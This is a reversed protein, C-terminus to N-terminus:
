EIYDLYPSQLELITDLTQEAARVSHVVPDVLLAQLAIKRSGTLVAEATMDHIAVQNQLLGAFGAPLRGLRVGHVGDKDITAPVEVVIWDPLDDILGHNPINVAMEEQGSDTLIGEIMPVVREGTAEQGMKPTKNQTWEKYWRYFDLIGQHDVM